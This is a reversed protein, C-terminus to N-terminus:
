GARARAQEAPTHEADSVSRAPLMTLGRILDAAKEGIMMAPGNTNSSVIQPMVSSDCIRLGELGRVRLDPTVVASEDVGMRCTGVLHYGTGVMRRAYDAYDERTRVESGPKYERRVLLAACLRSGFSPSGM